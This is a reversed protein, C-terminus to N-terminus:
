LSLIHKDMVRQTLQHHTPLCLYHSSVDPSDYALHHPLFYSMKISSAELFLKLYAHKQTHLWKFKIYM